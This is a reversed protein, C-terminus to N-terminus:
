ARHKFRCLTPRFWLLFSFELHYSIRVTKDNFTIADLVFQDLEVFPTRAQVFLLSVNGSFGLRRSAIRRGHGLELDLGFLNSLRLALVISQNILRCLPELLDFIGNEHLFLAINDSHPHGRQITIKGPAQHIVVIGIVIVLIVLFMVGLAIYNLM